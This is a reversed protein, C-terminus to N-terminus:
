EHHLWFCSTSFVIRFGMYSCIHVIEKQSDLSMGASSSIEQKAGNMMIRARLRGTNEPPAELMFSPSCGSRDDCGHNDHRNAIM